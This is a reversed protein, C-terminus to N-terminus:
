GHGHQNLWGIHRTYSIYYSYLPNQDAIIIQSTESLFFLANFGGLLQVSALPHWRCVWCFPSNIYVAFIHPNCLPKVLLIHHPKLSLSGPQFTNHKFIEGHAMPM